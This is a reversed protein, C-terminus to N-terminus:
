SGGPSGPPPCTRWWVPLWVTAYPAAASALAYLGASWFRGPCLKGYIKWARVAMKWASRKGKRM